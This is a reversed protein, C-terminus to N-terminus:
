KKLLTKKERKLVKVLKTDVMNAVSIDSAVEKAVKAILKSITLESDKVFVQDVM